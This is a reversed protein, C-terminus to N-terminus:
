LLKDSKSFNNFVVRDASSVLGPSSILSVGTGFSHFDNVEGDSKMRLRLEVLEDSCLASIETDATDMDAAGVGAGTERIPETEIVLAGEERSDLEGTDETTIDVFFERRAEASPPLDVTLTSEEGSDVFRIKERLLTARPPLTTRPGKASHLM